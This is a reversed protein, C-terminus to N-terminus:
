KQPLLLLPFLYLLTTWAGTGMGLVKVPVCVTPGSLTCGTRLVSIKQSRVPQVYEYGGTRMGSVKVPVCTM